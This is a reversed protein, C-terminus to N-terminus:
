ELVYSRTPLSVISFSILKLTIQSLSEVSVEYYMQMPAGHMSMFDGHRLKMVLFDPAKIPCGSLDKRARATLEEETMTTALSNLHQRVEPKFCGPLIPFEPHYHKRESTFGSFYKIKMRFHMDAPGGLSWAVVDPGLTKEGDDHYQSSHNAYKLLM